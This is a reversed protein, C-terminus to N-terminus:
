RGFHMRVFDYPPWPGTCAIRLAPERQAEHAVLTQFAEWRSREVLFSASASPPADRPGDGRLTVMATAGRRLARFTDAAAQELDPSGALSVEHVVRDGGAGRAAVPAEGSDTSAVRVRATACEDVFGIAEVLTFYHLELWGVLADRTRFVTGPPAPVITRQAFVTEVVARHAELDIPTPQGATYAAGRVVAGVDRYTVLATDPALPAAHASDIAAVGFLRVGTAEASAVRDARV